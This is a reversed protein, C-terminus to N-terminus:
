IHILSLSVNAGTARTREELPLFSEIITYSSNPNRATPSIPGLYETPTSPSPSDLKPLPNANLRLAVPDCSDLRFLTPSDRAIRCFQDQIDFSSFGRRSALVLALPVKKWTFSFKYM